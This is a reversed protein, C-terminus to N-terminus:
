HSTLGTRTKKALTSVRDLLKQYADSARDVQPKLLPLQKDWQDLLLDRTEWPELDELPVVPATMLEELKARQYQVLEPVASVKWSPENDVIVYIPASHAVIMNRPEQRDGYARVAIWMSHDAKLEQHVAIRDQGEANVAATVDGLVVVELRNLKDVDPNLQASAKLDLSAGRKVHLEEGMQRKNITFELFPGNSVYVHGAHFSTFWKDLDLPGNLSVYNRVVGPFDSYPWDSGAAPSIKYGLNLFRYWVDGFFRGAQLVEIFDVLGFPVELALGREGNFGQGMHAFGSVGGQKHSDSFVKEDQFYSDSALHIPRELNHHITHGMQGTRPDEQGSLIYHGERVFRSASGWTAPQKFHTGSINGMELLNGVYVDEAAVMGWVVPDDM